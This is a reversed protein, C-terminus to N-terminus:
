PLFNPPAMKSNQRGCKTDALNRWQLPIKKGKHYYTKQPTLSKSYGVRLSDKKKHNKIAWQHDRSYDTIIFTTAFCQNALETM